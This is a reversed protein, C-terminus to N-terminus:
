VLLGIYNARPYQTVLGPWQVLFVDCLPYLLKGALSLTRVRAFSEVFVLDPTQEDPVGLVRAGIVALALAFCTGPGNMLLVSARRPGGAASSLSSVGLTVSSITPQIDHKSLCTLRQVLPVAVLLSKVLTFPTTFISQHVHRSRPIQHVTYGDLGRSDDAKMGTKSSRTGAQFLISTIDNQGRAAELRHVKEVSASDDWGVVYHRPSYKTVDLVSVLRLM